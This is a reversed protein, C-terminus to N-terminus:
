GYDLAVADAPYRKRRRKVPTELDIGRYRVRRKRHALQVCANRLRIFSRLLRPIVLVADNDRRRVIEIIQREAGEILHLTQQFVCSVCDFPIAMERDEALDYLGPRSANGRPVKRQIADLAHAFAFALLANGRRPVNDTRLRM